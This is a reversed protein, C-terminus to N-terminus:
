YSSGKETTQTPLFYSRESSPFIEFLLYWELWPIAPKGPTPLFSPPTELKMTPQASVSHQLYISWSHILRTVHKVYM